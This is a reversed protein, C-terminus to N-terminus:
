TKKPRMQQNIVHKKYFRMIVVLSMWKKNYPNQLM